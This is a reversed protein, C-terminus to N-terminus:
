DADLLDLVDVPAVNAFTAKAALGSGDPIPWVDGDRMGGHSDSRNGTVWTQASGKVGFKVRFNVILVYPEDQCGELSTCQRGVPWPFDTYGEDQGENVTVQTAKFGWNVATPPAPAPVPCATAVVATIVLVGALLAGKSRLKKM